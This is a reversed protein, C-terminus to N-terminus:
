GLPRFDDYILTGWIRNPYPSFPTRLMDDLTALGNTAGPVPGDKLLKGTTSDYLAVAGDTATSPGEVTKAANNNVKTFAERPSDGGEGTPSSGLNVVDLPM